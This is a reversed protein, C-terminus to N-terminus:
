AFQEWPALAVALVFLFLAAVQFGVRAGEYESRDSFLLATVALAVWIM